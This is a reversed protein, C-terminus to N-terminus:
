VGKAPEAPQRAEVRNLLATGLRLAARDALGTIRRGAQAWLGARAQADRERLASVYQARLIAARRTPRDARLADHTAYPAHDFM